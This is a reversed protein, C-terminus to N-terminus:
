RYYFETSILTNGNTTSGGMFHVQGRPTVFMSCGARPVTLSPGASWSNTNANYIEGSSLPNVSTITGNGGGVTLFQGGGLAFTKHNSRDTAMNGASSWSNTNADYIEAVTTSTGPSLLSMSNIGGAVLWRGGGLDVPDLLAHPTSMSPGSSMSGSTPNYIDSTERAFPLNGIIFVSEWSIGGALLVQGNPRKIAVHGARPTTLNPGASWTNTTPNYIETTEVIDFIASLQTPTVTLADFGGTVLVNNNDLLTATHGMRPSSMSAVPSFSDTQPDYIECTGQPDNNQNVGGVFLYRGDNLRTMTHLSRPATMTPGPVFLDSVDDYIETTDRAIQALLAGQAGGCVMWRNDERLIVTGFIRDGTLVVGRDRFAGSNALYIACPNSLRDVITTQGGITVAQFYFGQDVLAPLSPVNSTPGVFEGNFDMFGFVSSAGLLGVDVVRPDAPDFAAIPTPGPNANFVILTPEFPYAGGRVSMSLTGPMSGGVVDLTLPAQALSVGSFCLTALSLSPLILRQM